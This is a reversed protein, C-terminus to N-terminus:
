PIIEILTISRSRGDPALELRDTEFRVPTDFVFGATVAGGAPPAQAFTVVGSAWDVGFATREVGDVAMRVSDTVPRTVPRVYASAADGYARVLQFTTRAGDSVGLPQDFPSPDRTPACSKSDLPDRFRFGQMAGRRAEFFAILEALADPSAEAISVEYRRRGSAWATNRLERGSALAVIDVRREPGGTVRASLSVPLYGDHFPSM